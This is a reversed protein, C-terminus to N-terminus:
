NFIETAHEGCFYGKNYYRKEYRGKNHGGGSQVAQADLLARGKIGILAAFLQAAAAGPIL